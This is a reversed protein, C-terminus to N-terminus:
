SVAELYGKKDTFWYNGKISCTHFRSNLPYLMEKNERSRMLSYTVKPGHLLYGLDKGRDIVKEIKYIGFLKEQLPAEEQITFYLLDFSSIEKEGGDGKLLVGDGKVEKIIFINGQPDKIKLGVM